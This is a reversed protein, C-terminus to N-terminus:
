AFPDFNNLADEIEQLADDNTKFEIMREKMLKFIVLARTTLYNQLQDQCYSAGNNQVCRWLTLPNIPVAKTDRLLIYPKAPDSEEHYFLDLCSFHWEAYNIRKVVFGETQCKLQPVTLSDFDFADIQAQSFRDGEELAMVLSILGIFM